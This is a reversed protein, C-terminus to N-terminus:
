WLSSTRGNGSNYIMSIDDASLVRTAWIATQDILGTFMSTNNFTFGGMVLQQTTWTTTGTQTTTSNLTGNIYIKTEGGSTHTVVLHVWTANTISNDTTYVTSATHDSLTFASKSNIQLTRVAIGATYDNPGWRTLIYDDAVSTPNIWMSISFNEMQFISSTGFTIKDDTGDFQVCKGIKGAVNNVTGNALTGDYGGIPDDANTGSTEDFEWVATLGTKLGSWNTILVSDRQVKYSYAPNYSTNTYRIFLSKVISDIKANVESVTYYASTDADAINLKEDLQEKITKATNIGNLTKLELSDLVTKTKGAGVVLQLPVKTGPPDVAFVTSVLFVIAIALFLRKM